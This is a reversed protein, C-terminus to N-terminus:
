KPEMTNLLTQINAEMIVIQQLMKYHTDTMENLQTLSEKLYLEIFDNPNIGPGDTETYRQKKEPM